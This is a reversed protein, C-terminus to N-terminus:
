TDSWALVFLTRDQDWKFAIGINYLAPCDHYAWRTYRPGICQRLWDEIHLLSEVWDVQTNSSIPWPIQAHYQFHHLDVLM